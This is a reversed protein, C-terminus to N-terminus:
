IHGDLEGGKKRKKAVKLDAALRVDAMNAQSWKWIPNTGMTWRTIFGILILKTVSGSTIQEGSRVRGTPNSGM